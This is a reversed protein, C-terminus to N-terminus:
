DAAAVRSRHAGLACAGPVYGEMSEVRHNTLRRDAREVYSGEGVTVSTPDDQRGGTVRCAQRIDTATM